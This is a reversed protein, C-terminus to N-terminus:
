VDCLSWCVSVQQCVRLGLGEFVCMPLSFPTPAKPSHRPSYLALLYIQGGALSGLYDIVRIVISVCVCVTFVCVCVCTQTKLM